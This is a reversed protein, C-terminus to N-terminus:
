IKVQQFFLSLWVNTYSVYANVDPDVYISKPKSAGTEKCIQYVFEFLEPYDNKHLKIRNAPRHNKLKFIFKLTFAFLMISGAIAGLKGLITLKNVDLMDYTFAWEILYALGIILLVYLVFFVVIALVALTAKIM